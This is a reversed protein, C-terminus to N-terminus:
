HSRSNIKKELYNAKHIKNTNLEQSPNSLYLLRYKFIKITRSPITESKLTVPNFVSKYM